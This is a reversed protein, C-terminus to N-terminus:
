LERGFRITYLQVLLPILSFSSSSCGGTYLCCVLVHAVIMYILQAQYRILIEKCMEALHKLRTWVSAPVCGLLNDKSHHECSSAKTDLCLCGSCCVIMGGCWILDINM